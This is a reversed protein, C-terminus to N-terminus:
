NNELSSSRPIARVHRATHEALLRPVEGAISECQLFITPSKEALFMFALCKIKLRIM